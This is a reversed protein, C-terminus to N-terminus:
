EEHYHVELKPIIGNTFDNFNKEFEPHNLGSFRMYKDTDIMCQHGLYTPLLLDNVDVSHGLKELQLMSNIVFIHRLSHICAGRKKKGNEDHAINASKLIIDFWTLVSKKSFPQGSIQGPFIYEYPKDLIGIQFCYSELVNSLTEHIPILREKSFKTNRLFITNKKFDIDKRQLSLTEGLRTGCGYLIRLLMPIMMALYPHARLPSKIPLNDAYYFIQEMEKDSYIYPIYNSKVKPAHPLFSQNGITNLYKVFNRIISVKNMVTKSNGDFSHILSNIIDESLTKSHYDKNFLYKDLYSMLYIYYEYTSQSLVHFSMELFDSIETALISKFM